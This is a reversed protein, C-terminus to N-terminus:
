LKMFSGSRKALIHPSAIHCSILCCTKKEIRASELVSVNKREGDVVLHIYLNYNLIIKGGLGACFM